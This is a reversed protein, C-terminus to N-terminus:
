YVRIFYARTQAVMAGFNSNARVRYRASKSWKVSYTVRGQANTCYRKCLADPQRLITWKGKVFQELQLPQMSVTAGAYSKASAVITMTTYKKISSRVTLNTITLNSIGTLRLARGVNTCADANFGSVSTNVLTQCADMVAQGFEFYSSASTLAPLAQYILVSMRSIGTCQSPTHCIGDSPVTGLPAVTTSGVTAGNAILWAFRNLPGSNVHGDASKWDKTIAPKTAQPSISTGSKMVRYPGPDTGGVNEGIKWTPDAASNPSLREAAEGFVDSLGESMAAADSTNSFGDQFAISFTIGHTLEHAIVDLAQDFRSGMFIGSCAGTRCISTPASWPVWFANGYSPCDAKSDYLCVNTFASIRPNRDGNISNSINGLWQEDNIDVNLVDKYYNWTADIDGLAVDSSATNRGAYNTGCLPYLDGVSNIYMYGRSSRVLGSSGLASSQSSYDSTVASQLDCVNPTYTIHHAIASTYLVKSTADDLVSVAVSDPRSTLSTWSMWAIHLGEPIGSVLASDALVPHVNTVAVQTTLAGQAAAVENQLARVAQDQSLTAVFPHGAVIQLTTVDFSVLHLEKDLTLALLSGLVDMGSATQVFRLTVLEAAGPITKTKQVTQSSVGWQEAHQDVFALAASEADTAQPAVEPISLVSASKFVTSTPQGIDIVNPASSAFAQSAVTSILGLTLIWAMVARFGSRNIVFCGVPLGKGLGLRYVSTDFSVNLLSKNLFYRWVM